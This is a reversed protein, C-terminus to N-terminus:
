ENMIVLMAEFEVVAATFALFAAAVTNLCFLLSFAAFNRASLM